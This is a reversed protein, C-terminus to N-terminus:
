HEVNNNDLHSHTSTKIYQIQKKKDTRYQIYSIENKVNRLKEITCRKLLEIKKHKLYYEKPFSSFIM